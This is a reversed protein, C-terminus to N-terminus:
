EIEIDENMIEEYQEHETQKAQWARQLYSHSTFLEAYVSGFNTQELIAGAFGKAHFQKGEENNDFVFLGFWGFYEVDGLEEDFGSDLSSEYLAESIPGDFKSYPNDKHWQEIFDLEDQELIIPNFAM